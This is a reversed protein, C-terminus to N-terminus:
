KQAKLIQAHLVRSYFTPSISVQTTNGDPEHPRWNSWTLNSQSSSWVFVGENQIDTLGLWVFGILNKVLPLILNAQISSKM